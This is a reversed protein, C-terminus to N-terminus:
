SQKSQNNIVSIILKVVLDKEEPKSVAVFLTLAALTENSIIPTGEATFLLGNVNLFHLFCAAGIRKNGDAFAHNKVILYLLVAAKEEITPYLEKGDFTQAIQGIASEFSQDKPVAFVSSGFEPKLSNIIQLYDELTPYVAQKTFVGEARISQHDYQDLLELGATFLALSNQVKNEELVRHLIRIGSKLMEVQMQKEALRKENIAYGQVLYEKLRQTAWQRFQIGRKTNVRYGVSIIVDLNYYELERSVKRSGEQRVTRFKRVTAEPQLEGTQYISKIHESINAKSSKFLEVLQAQTLWVTEEEFRVEIQIQNDTSKYIQIQNDM